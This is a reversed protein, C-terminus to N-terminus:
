FDIKKIDLFAYGDLEVAILFFSNGPIIESVKFDNLNGSVAVGDIAEMQNELKKNIAMLQKEIHPRFNLKMKEKMKGYLFTNAMAQLSKNVFWNNTEGELDHDKVSIEQLSENFDLAIHLLIGGEKNRFFSTLNRFKIDLALDFAEKESKQLSVDLIKLYNKEEGQKNTTSINEGVLKKQLYDELVRYDIKLPLKLIINDQFTSKM